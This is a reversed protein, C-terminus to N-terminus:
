ETLKSCSSSLARSCCCLLQRRCRRSSSKQIRWMWRRGKSMTRGRRRGEKSSSSVAAVQQSVRHSATAFDAATTSIEECARQYTEARELLTQLASRDSGELQLLLMCQLAMLYSAKTMMQAAKLLKQAVNLPYSPEEAPVGGEKPKSKRTQYLAEAKHAHSEALQIMQIPGQTMEMVLQFGCTRVAPSPGEPGFLLLLLQQRAGSEVSGDSSGITGASELASVASARLNSCGEDKSCGPQACDSSSRGRHRSGLKGFTLASQAVHSQQQQEQEIHHCAQACLQQFARADFLETALDQQQLMPNRALLVGAVLPHEEGMLFRRAGHHATIDLCNTTTAFDRVYQLFLQLLHYSPLESLHPSEEAGKGSSSTTFSESTTSCPQCSAGAGARPAQHNSQSSSSSSSNICCDQRLHNMAVLQEELFAIVESRSWGQSSTGQARAEHILLMVDEHQIIGHHLMAAVLWDVLVTSPISGGVGLVLGAGETMEHM